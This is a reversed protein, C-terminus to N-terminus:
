DAEKKNLPFNKTFFLDSKQLNSTKKGLCDLKLEMIKLQDSLDNQKQEMIRQHGSEENLRMDMLKDNVNGEITNRYYLYCLVASTALAALHAVVAILGIWFVKNM